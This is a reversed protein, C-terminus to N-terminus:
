VDGTMPKSARSEIWYVQRAFKGKMLDLEKSPMANNKIQHVPDAIV